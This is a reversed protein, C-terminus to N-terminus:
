PARLWLTWGIGAAAFWLAACKAAAVVPRGKRRRLLIAVSNAYVFFAVAGVVMSRAALIANATGSHHLQLGMTALAVSPAGAFTGAFSKPRFLDGLLAFCSVLVGGIAFRVLLDTM